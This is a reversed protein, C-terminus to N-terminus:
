LVKESQSGGAERKCPGQSERLGGPYDLIVM